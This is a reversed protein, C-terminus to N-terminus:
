HNPKKDYRPFEDNIVYWSPTSSIFAHYQRAPNIHSDLTGVRLRLISPLDDRASYLPSACIGCFVRRKNPSARYESLKDKGKVVKFLEAEIPAVAVFAGGQAKQCQACYCRSLEEIDGAYTYSVESCLCSGGHM